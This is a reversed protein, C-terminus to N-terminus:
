GRADTFSAVKKLLIVGILKETDLRRLKTTREDRAQDTFRLESASIANKIQREAGLCLYDM